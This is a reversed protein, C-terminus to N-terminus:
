DLEIVTMKAVKILIYYSFKNIDKNKKKM